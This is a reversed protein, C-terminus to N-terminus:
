VLRVLATNLTLLSYYSRVQGLVANSMQGPSIDNCFPEEIEVFTQHLPSVASDSLYKWLVELATITEFDKLVDALLQLFFENLIGEM